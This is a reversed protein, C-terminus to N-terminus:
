LFITKSIAGDALINKKFDDEKLDNDIIKAEQYSLGYLKSVM